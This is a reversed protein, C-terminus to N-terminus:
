KARRTKIKGLGRCQPCSPVEMSAPPHGVRVQRANSYIGTGGCKPCKEEILESKAKKDMVRVRPNPGSEYSSDAWINLQIHPGGPIM